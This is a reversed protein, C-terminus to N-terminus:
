HLVYITQIATHLLLLQVTSAIASYKLILAYM